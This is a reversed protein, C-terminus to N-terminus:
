DNGQRREDREMAVGSHRRRHRPWPVAATQPLASRKSTCLSLVNAPVIDALLSLNNTITSADFYLGYASVLATIAPFIALLIFFAVGGAISLLRDSQMEAYTRWLIDKWGRWPIQLPHTAHRGRGDEHARQLEIERPEESSRPEGFPRAEHPAAREGRATVCPMALTLVCSRSLSADSRKPADLSERSRSCHHRGFPQLASFQSPRRQGNATGLQSLGIGERGAMEPRFLARAPSLEPAPRTPWSRM